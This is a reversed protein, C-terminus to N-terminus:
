YRGRVSPNSLSAKTKEGARSAEYQALASKTKPGMLGDVQGPDFGADRLRLQLIRIQERPHVAQVVSAQQYDASRTERAEAKSSSIAMKQPRTDATESVIAALPENLIEKFEKAMLCGAKFKRLASQTRSAFIRDVPGSYFGAERLQEQIEQTERRSPLKDGAAAGATLHGEATHFSLEELRPALKSCGSQLRVYAAKTREGAVGDVPGPNFGIERLGRQLRRIDDNTLAPARLITPAVDTPRAIEVVKTPPIPETEVVPVSMTDTALKQCDCLGCGSVVVFCILLILDFKAV